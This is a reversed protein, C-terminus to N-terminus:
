CSLVTWRALWGVTEGVNRVICLRAATQKKHQRQQQQQQVDAEAAVMAEALKQAAVHGIAFGKGTQFRQAGSTVFGILDTADPLPLHQQRAQALSSAPYPLPTELLSQALLRKRTAMDAGPPMRRMTNQQTQHGHHSDNDALARWLRRRDADDTPLRYIRARALPTGRGLMEVSVTALAFPKRWVPQQQQEQPSPLRLCAAATRLDAWTVHHMERVLDCPLRLAEFQVEEPPLDASASNSDTATAVATSVPDVGFLHEWDCAFGSGLEGKKTGGLDVASWQPRKAPPTKDWAVKAARRSDLEWDWGAPTGPFDAPFWPQGRELAVFRDEDLGALLPRRGSSRLSQRHLVRWFVDICGRPALLTWSPSTHSSSVSPAAPSLPIAAGAVALIVPIPRDSPTSLLRSNVPLKGRRRDLSQQSPMWAAQRRLTDDFLGSPQRTVNSSAPWEAASAPDLHGVKQENGEEVDYRPDQVDFALMAGSAPALASADVARLQLFDAAQPDDPRCPRLLALLADVACSGTLEISGIDMRLDQITVALHRRRVVAVLTTWVHSFITPHVRLLAETTANTATSDAKPNYFLTMAGCNGPGAMLGGALGGEQYGYRRPLKADICCAGRRLGPRQLLAPEIVAALVADLQAADDAQLRLVAMYSTDWSLCTGPRLGASRLSARYTKNAPTKAVVAHWLAGPCAMHARKALWMHTPLRLQDIPLPHGRRRKALGVAVSPTNDAAQDRRAQQQLRRPLRKADHSATRRRMGRPLRQFAKEVRSDKSAKISRHLDGIERQLSGMFATLDVSDTPGKATSGDADTSNQVTRRRKAPRAGGGSASEM